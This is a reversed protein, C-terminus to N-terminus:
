LDEEKVEVEVEVEEVSSAAAASWQTFKFPSTAGSNSKTQEQEQERPKPWREEGCSAEHHLDEGAHSAASSPDKPFNTKQQERGSARPLFPASKSVKHAQSEAVCASGQTGRRECDRRARVCLCCGQSRSGPARKRTTSKVVSSDGDTRWCDTGAEEKANM